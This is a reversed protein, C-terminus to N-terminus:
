ASVGASTRNAASVPVEIGTATKGAGELVATFKM